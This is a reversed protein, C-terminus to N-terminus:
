AAVDRATQEGPTKYVTVCRICILSSCSKLDIADRYEDPYFYFLVQEPSRFEKWMFTFAELMNSVLRSMGVPMPASGATANSLLGVQWNDLDAVICLAESVPQDVLPFKAEVSLGERIPWWWEEEKLKTRDSDTVRSEKSTEEVIRRRGKKKRKTFGQVVMGWTYGSEPSSNSSPEDVVVTKCGLLSDVFGVRENPKRKM